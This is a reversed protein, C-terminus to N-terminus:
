WSNNSFDQGLYIQDYTNGDHDDTYAVAVQAYPSVAVTMQEQRGDPLSNLQQASLRGTDTGNTGFGRVWVDVGGVTWGVVSQSADDLGISPARGGAAVQVDAFRAAGTATFTRTWSGATGTHDSEWAVAFDGNFNAAVSPRIQQGGTNANAVRRSLTAAGNTRGLRILGIEYSSNADGDDDWVVVADGSASVAVDPNHHQGTTASATVEWARTTPGTYGAAKVTAPTGTQIDEWTVTFAVAGGAPAGDPDVGVRPNIQQGTASSNANGSATVTGATNLVRYPINYYGNGDPDDQWVVVANGKDDLGVDPHLHRWNTVGSSGAASLKKEYLATGNRYTRIYIESHVDTTADDTDRDDEWVVAVDGNRNTAIAPADQDGTSVSNATSWTPTALHAEAAPATLVFTTAAVAAFALTKKM